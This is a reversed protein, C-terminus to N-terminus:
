EVESLAKKFLSLASLVDQQAPTLAPQAQAQSLQQQMQALQAQAAALQSQANKLDAQAQAASAKADNAAANAADVQAQAGAATAVAADREKQASQVAVQAVVLQNKLDATLYDKVLGQDIHAFYVAGTAGTPSDYKRNPDYALAGREFIQVSGFSQFSEDTLPLGLRFLGDNNRYFDLMGHDIVKGTAKAKWGTGSAVFFNSDMSLVTPTGGAATSTSAASSTVNLMLLGCPVAAQLTEYSYISFANEIDWNDGDACIFGEPRKGVVTIFHYHVGAEANGTGLEGKLNFAQAIQLVIPKTGANDILVQHWDHNFPESYDWELAVSAHKRAAEQALSWLTSAGNASAWGLGRMESTIALMLNITGQKDNPNGLAAAIAVSLATEGCTGTYGGYFEKIHQANPLITITSDAM